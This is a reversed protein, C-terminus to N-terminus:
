LSFEAAGVVSGVIAPLAEAAGEQLEKSPM